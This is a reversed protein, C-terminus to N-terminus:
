FSIGAGIGVMTSREMKPANERRQRRSDSMQQKRKAKEMKHILRTDRKLAEASKRSVYQRLANQDSYTGAAISPSAKFSPDLLGAEAKLELVRHVKENLEDISFIGNEVSDAIAEIAGKIDVPMLLIDSGSRYAQVTVDVADAIYSGEEIEFKGETIETEGSWESKYGTVKIKTGAALQGYEEETCPMDFLFYAGDADQTYFSAKGQGADEWWGQKAQIYTEVVVETDLEAAMYEEYTMVGEGKETDAENKTEPVAPEADGSGGSSSSGCASLTGSLILAAALVAAATRLKCLRQKKM